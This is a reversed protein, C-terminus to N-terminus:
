SPANPRASYGMWHQVLAEGTPLPQYNDGIAALGEPTIQVPEGRNILGATRLMSLANRDGGSTHSYRTLLSLQMPKRGAPYQALVALITREAKSLPKGEAAAGTEAAPKDM